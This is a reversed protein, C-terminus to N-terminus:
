GGSCWWLGLDTGLFCLGGLKVRIECIEEFVGIMQAISLAHCVIGKGFFTVSVRCIARISCGSGCRGTWFFGGLREGAVWGQRSVEQGGVADGLRSEQRRM